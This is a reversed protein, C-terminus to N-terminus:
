QPVTIQGLEIFINGEVAPVSEQEARGPEQPANASSNIALSMDYSGPKPPLKARLSFSAKEGPGLHLSPGAPTGAAARVDAAKLNVTFGQAMLRLGTWGGEQVYVPNSVQLPEVGGNSLELDIEAMGDRTSERSRWRAEARLVRFPFERLKGAVTEIYAFVEALKPEDPRFSLTQPRQDGVRRVGLSVRGSGPSMVSPTDIHQYDSARLRRLLEAFLEPGIAGKWSGIENQDHYNFSLHLQGTGDREMSMHMNGFRDFGRSYSLAVVSADDSGDSTDSEATLAM